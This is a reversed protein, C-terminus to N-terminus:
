QLGRWTHKLGLGNALISAFRDPPPVPIKAITKWAAKVSNDFHANGSKRDFQLPFQIRGTKSIHLVLLVYLGKAEEKPIISPLSWTRNWVDAVRTMYADGDSARTATGGVVGDPSGEQEIEQQAAALLEARDLSRQMKDAVKSERDKKPKKRSPADSADATYDAVEEKRLNQQPIRKNPMKKEERKKGLRVLKAVVYSPQPPPKQAADLRARYLFIGGVAGGHLLATIIFGVIAVPEFKKKKGYSM